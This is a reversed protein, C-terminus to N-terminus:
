DHNEEVQFQLSWLHHYLGEKAILEEHSGQEVIRGKELVLIRDANRITSLRHAIVFTTRGKMLVELAKQVMQESETDLASTAEDLILIRPNKLLARAIAIRQRQGASLKVGREGVETEYGEPLEEIFDHAYAAKAASIVDERDADPDGYAINDSISGGFLFTEQPVLGLQSRLSQLTVDMIPQGDIEIQGSDPDFFRPILNVMTTKGVGSPGVLAIVEAPKVDLNIDRLVLEDEDYGFSVNQFTVQGEIPSMEEADESQEPEFPMEMIEFIRSAAGIAERIQSYVGAFEGLPSAVMFMYFIFAVLEGPTLTENLVFQGGIWMIATVAAFGLLSVLPIFAARMRTRDMTTDFTKEIRDKFRRQEYGEQTFSKVIRIGSISEELASIASALRDQVQTSLREVKRGFFVALIVIPPIIAFILLTLQWNMLAMLTIGGIITVLQRLLAIPTETLVAQLTTVDNTVRSVIEGVRSEKFFRLPLYLLHQQISLRLDAIVRQGLFLLLYNQGYGIAAQFIFLGILILTMRNLEPKSYTVFVSDVLYRAAYPLGLSILSWLTLMIAALTMQKWYPRVYKFLKSLKKM